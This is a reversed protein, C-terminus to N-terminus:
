VGLETPGGDEHRCSVDYTPMARYAEEPVGVAVNASRCGDERAM